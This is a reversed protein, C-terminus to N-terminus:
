TRTSSLSRIRVAALFIHPARTVVTNRALTLIREVRFHNTGQRRRVERDLPM